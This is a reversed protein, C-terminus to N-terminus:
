GLAEDLRDLLADLDDWEFPTEATPTGMVVSPVDEGARGGLSEYFGQAGRNGSLTLLRASRFGLDRLHDAVAFFLATGIGNGQFNPDVYLVYIEGTGVAVSELGSDSRVPGGQCFGVVKRECTAVSFRRPDTETQIIRAWRQAARVESMGILLDDPLLGVYADRWADVQVRAIGSADTPRVPRIVIEFNRSM